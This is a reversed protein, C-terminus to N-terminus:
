EKDKDEAWESATQSMAHAGFSVTIDIEASPEILCHSEVEPWTDRVRGEWVSPRIDSETEGLPSLTSNLLM